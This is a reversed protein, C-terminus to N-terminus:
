ILNAVLNIIDFMESFIILFFISFICCLVFRVKYSYVKINKSSVGFMEKDFVVGSIRFNQSYKRTTMIKKLLVIRSGSVQM